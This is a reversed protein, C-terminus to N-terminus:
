RHSEIEELRDRAPAYSPALVAVREYSAEAEDLRGQALLAEGLVFWNTAAEPEIEVCARMSAEAEPYRALMLLARGRVGHGRADEPDLALVRDAERVTDEYRNEALYVEARINALRLQDTEAAAARDLIAHADQFRGMKRYIGALNGMMTVDGSRRRVIEEALRALTPWDNSASLQQFQTELSAVSSASRNLEQDLPDRLAFWAGQPLEAARAYHERAREREGLAAYIRGLTNQVQFDDPGLREAAELHQLALEPEGRRLAVRGLGVDGLWDDPRLTSYRRLAEEAADLAGAELYLQGLRAHTVPYDPDIALATDFAAIAEENRGLVQHVCGSFYPWRFNTPDGEAARAFYGLAAGHSELSECIQGVRGFAAPDDSAAAEGLAALLNEAVVAEAREIGPPDPLGQQRCWDRLAPSDIVAIRVGDADHEYGLAPPGAPPGRRAVAFFLVVAVALVALSAVGIRRARSGSSRPAAGAADSRRRRRRARSM